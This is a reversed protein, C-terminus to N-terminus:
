YFPNVIYLLHQISYKYSLYFLFVSSSVIFFPCM